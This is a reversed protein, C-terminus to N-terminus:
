VKEYWGALDFPEKVIGKCDEFADTFSVFEFADCQSEPNCNYIKVGEQEIYPRISKLMANEHEYRRNSMSAKQAFSYQDVETRLFDVGLLYVKPCGLYCMLRIGLLMTCLCEFPKPDPQKGGYGWMAYDTKLFQDPYMLTKRDFGFTNPCDKVKNESWKFNNGEKIRYNKTLKPIPAFTMMKPDLFL